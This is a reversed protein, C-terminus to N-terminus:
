HTKKVADNVINYKLLLNKVKFPKLTKECMLTEDRDM